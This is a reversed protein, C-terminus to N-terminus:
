ARSVPATQRADGVQNSMDMHQQARAVPECLAEAGSGGTSDRHAFQYGHSRCQLVETAAHGTRSELLM